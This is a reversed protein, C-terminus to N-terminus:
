FEFYPNLRNSISDNLYPIEKLDDIGEIFGKSSRLQIIDNALRSDIYPHRVFEEWECFNVRIKDPTFLTDVYVVSKINALSSGKLGYVDNLQNINSYGGLLERYKIIRKSLVSGIGWVTKLTNTDIDNIDFIAVNTEKQHRADYATSRIDSRKWQVKNITDPLLIYDELKAFLLEPLDYIKLLDRKIYFRGNSNRYKMIRKAMISDFGLLIMQHYSIENPNFSFVTDGIPQYINKAVQTSEQNSKFIQIISDLM